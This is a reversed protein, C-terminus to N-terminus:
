DGASVEAAIMAGRRVVLLVLWAEFKRWRLSLCLSSKEPDSLVAPDISM